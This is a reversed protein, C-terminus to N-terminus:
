LKFSIGNLEKDLIKLLQEAEEKKLINSPHLMNGKKGAFKIKKPPVASIVVATKEGMKILEDAKPHVYKAPRYGWWSDSIEYLCFDGFEKKRLPIIYYEDGKSNKLTINKLYGFGERIDSLIDSPHLSAEVIVEGTNRINFGMEIESSRGEGKVFTFPFVEKMKKELDEKLFVKIKDFVEELKKRELPSSPEWVAVHFGEERLEEKFEKVRQRTWEAEEVTKATKLVDQKSVGKELVAYYGDEAEFIGKYMARRKLLDLSVEKKGFFAVQEPLIEKIVLSIVLDEWDPTYEWAVLDPGYVGVFYFKDNKSFLFTGTRVEEEWLGNSIEQYEEDEMEPYWSVEFGGEKELKEMLASFFEEGSEKGMKGEEREEIYDGADFRSVIIKKFFDFDEPVVGFIKYISAGKPAEKSFIKINLM